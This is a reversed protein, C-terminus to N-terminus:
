SMTHVQWQNAAVKSYQAVSGPVLTAPNNTGLSSIQGGSPPYVKITSGGGSNSNKVIIRYCGDPLIVGPTTGSGTVSVTDSAIAAATGQTTGTATLTGCNFSIVNEVENVTATWSHERDWSAAVDESTEVTATWTREQSWSPAITTGFLVTVSWRSERQFSPTYYAGTQVASVWEREIDWAASFSVATAIAASLARENAFLPYYLASFSATAGGSASRELHWQGQLLPGSVARGNFRRKHRWKPLISLQSCTPVMVLTNNPDIEGVWSADTGHPGPCCTDVRPAGSDWPREAGWVEGPEGTDGDDWGQERSHNHSGYVHEKNLPEKDTWYWVVEVLGVGPFRM